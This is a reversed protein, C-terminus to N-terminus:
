HVDIFILPGLWGLGAKGLWAWGLLLRALGLGAWGAWGLRALEIFVLLFSQFDILILSGDWWGLGTWGLGAQGAWGLKAGCALGRGALGLGASGLRQWGLGSHLRLGPTLIPTPPM